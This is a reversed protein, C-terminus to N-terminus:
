YTEESDPVENRLSWRMLCVTPDQPILVISGESWAGGGDGPAHAHSRGYKSFKVTSALM